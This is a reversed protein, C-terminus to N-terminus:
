LKHSGYTEAASDVRPIRATKSLNIVWTILARSNQVLSIVRVRDSDDLPELLSLFSTWGPSQEVLWEVVWFTGVPGLFDNVEWKVRKPDTRPGLRLFEMDEMLYM